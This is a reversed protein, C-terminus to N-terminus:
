MGKYEKFMAWLDESVSRWSHKEIDLTVDKWRNEVIANVLNEAWYDVEEETNCDTETIWCHGKTEADHLTNNLAGMRRVM